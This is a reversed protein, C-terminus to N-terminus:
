AVRLVELAKNDNVRHTIYSGLGWLQGASSATAAQLQEITVHKLNDESLDLMHTGGVQVTQLVERIHRTMKGRLPGTINPHRKLEKQKQKPLGGYVQGEHHVEYVAGAAKLLAIARDVAINKTSM